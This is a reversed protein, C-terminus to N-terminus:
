QASVAASLPKRGRPKGTVPKKVAPKGGALKKIAKAKVPKVPKEAESVLKKEADIIQKDLAARKGYMKKLSNLIQSAKAM